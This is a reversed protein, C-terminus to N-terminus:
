YCSGSQPAGVAAGLVGGIIAGAARNGSYRHYGYRNYYRHGGNPVASGIVAGALRRRGGGGGPDGCGYYSSGYGYPSLWLPM